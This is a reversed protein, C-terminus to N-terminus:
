PLLKHAYLFCQILSQFSSPVSLKGFTFFYNYELLVVLGSVVTITMSDFSGKKHERLPVSNSSYFTGRVTIINTKTDYNGNNTTVDGPQIFNFPSQYIESPLTVECIKPPSGASSWPSATIV